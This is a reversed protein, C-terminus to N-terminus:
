APRDWASEDRIYRIGDFGIRSCEANRHPWLVALCLAVVLDDHASETLAEYTDRGSTPSMKVRMDLLEQRLTAILPHKGAFHLRDEQLLVQARSILAVKPVMMGEGHQGSTITIGQPWFDGCDGNRYADNFIDMVPDGLGTADVRLVTRGKLPEEDLKRGIIQVIKPYHTGRPFRHIDIVEFDDVLRSTSVGWQDEREGTDRELREILVLASYDRAKGLETSRRTGGGERTPAPSCGM